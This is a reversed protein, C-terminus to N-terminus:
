QMASKDMSVELADALDRLVAICLDKEDNTYKGWQSVKNLFVEFSIPDGTEESDIGVLVTIGVDESITKQKSAM